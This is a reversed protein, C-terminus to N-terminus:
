AGEQKQEDAPRNVMKQRKQAMLLAERTKDPIEVVIVEVAFHAVAAALWSRGKLTIAASEDCFCMIKRWARDTLKEVLAMKLLDSAIKDPQGGKLKGVRAYIECLVSNKEDLGDIQVKLRDSFSFRIPKLSLGHLRNIESLIVTEAKSQERSSSLHLDKSVEGQASM